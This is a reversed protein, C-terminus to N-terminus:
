KSTSLSLSQTTVTASPNIKTYYTVTDNYSALGPSADNNKGDTNDANTKNVLRGSNDTTPLSADAVLKINGGTAQLLRGHLDYINSTTDSTSKLASFFFKKLSKNAKLNGGTGGSRILGGSGLTLNSDNRKDSTKDDATSYDTDIGIRTKYGQLKNHKVSVTATDGTATSNTRGTILVKNDAQIGDASNTDALRAM